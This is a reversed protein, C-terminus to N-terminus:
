ISTWHFPGKLFGQQCETKVLEQVDLPKKRASSLNMCEINTLPFSPVITDFAKEWVLAYEVFEQGPHKSLEMELRDIDVPTSPTQSQFLNLWESPNPRNRSGTTISHETGTVTSPHCASQVHSPKKCKLFIHVYSCFKRLCWKEGNLHKCIERGQFTIRPRGISDPPPM